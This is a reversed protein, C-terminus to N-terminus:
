SNQDERTLFFGALSSSSSTTNHLEERLGIVEAAVILSHFVIAPSRVARTVATPSFMQERSAEEPDPYHGYRYEDCRLLIHTMEHIVCEAIDSPKWSPAPAICITGLQGGLAASGSDVVTGDYFAVESVLLSLLRQAQQPLLRLGDWFLKASEPPAGLSGNLGTPERHYYPALTRLRDEDTVLHLEGDPFPIVNTSAAFGRLGHALDKESRVPAESHASALVVLNGLCDHFGTSYYM